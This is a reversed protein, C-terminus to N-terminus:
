KALKDVEKELQNGYRKISHVGFYNIKKIKDVNKSDRLAIQNLNNELSKMFVNEKNSFVIQKYLDVVGLMLEDQTLKTQM